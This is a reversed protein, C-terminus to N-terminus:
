KLLMPLKRCLLKVSFDVHGYLSLYFSAYMTDHKKLSNMINFTLISRQVRNLHLCRWLWSCLAWKCSDNSVNKLISSLSQNTVNSVLVQSNWSASTCLQSKMGTVCKCLKSVINEKIYVTKIVPKNGCNVKHKHNKKSARDTLINIVQGSNSELFAHWILM